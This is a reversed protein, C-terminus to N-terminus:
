GIPQYYYKIVKNVRVHVIKIVTFHLCLSLFMHLILRSVIYDYYLLQSITLLPVLISISPYKPPLAYFAITISIEVM